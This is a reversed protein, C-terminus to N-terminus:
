FALGAKRRAETLPIDDLTKIRPMRNRLKRRRESPILGTIGLDRNGKLHAKYLFAADTARKREEYHEFLRASAGEILIDEYDDTLWNTDVDASLATSYFYGGTFELTRAESPVPHLRFDLGNTGGTEVLYAPTGTPSDPSTIWSYFAEGGLMVLKQYTTPSTTSLLRLTVPHHLILGSPWTYTGDDATLAQTNSSNKTYFLPYEQEVTQQVKVIWAKILALTTADTRDSKQQIRTQIELYTM